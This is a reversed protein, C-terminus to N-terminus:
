VPAVKQKGCLKSPGSLFILTLIFDNTAQVGLAHGTCFVDIIALALTDQSSVSKFVFSNRLVFENVNFM